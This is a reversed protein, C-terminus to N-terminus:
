CTCHPGLEVHQGQGHVGCHKAEWELLAKIMSTNGTVEDFQYQIKSENKGLKLLVGTSVEKPGCFIDRIQQTAKLYM